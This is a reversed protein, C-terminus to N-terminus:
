RSEQVVARPAPGRDVRYATWVDHMRDGQGQTFESMCHDHSYDMFNHIPDADGGPCTDKHLPCGDTPLNEPSTDPVRDGPDRCGNQFTHYLGLWHGVEHTATFGRDFGPITGGPLSKTHVVVGDMAPTSKYLWPFTAWGLVQDGLDASYLNLTGPGGKRLRKKFDAEHRTPDAYWRPEDTRTVERLVFDFRTDEGGLTGDYSSDLARIQRDIQEDTLNGAPGSHLVHFNVPVTVRTPPNSRHRGRLGGLLKALEREVKAAQAPTLENREPDRGEGPRLRAQAPPCDDAGPRGVSVRSPASPHQPVAATALLCVALVATLPKM